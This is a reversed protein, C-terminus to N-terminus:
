PDGAVVCCHRGAQKARYLAADAQQVLVESSQGPEPALVALGVSITVHASSDSAAHPLALEDVADIMRQAIARLGASNTRPFFAVFEEGGYRAVFDSGRKCQGALAAAVRALCDDGAQHGYHDNYRKFYDVDIFLLNMAAGERMAAAWERAFVEDFHRRNALGTLADQRSIVGLERTLEDLERKELVLLREQLFVVRQRLEFTLGTLGAILASGLAFYPFRSWDPAFGLAFFTALAALVVLVARRFSMSSITCIAMTIFIVGYEAISRLATGAPAVVTGILMGTLSVFAAGALVRDVQPHLAPVTVSIGVAAVGLLVTGFGFVVAGYLDVPINGFGFTVAAIVAITAAVLLWRSRIEAVAHARRRAHYQAELFAPLRLQALTGGDLAAQLPARGASADDMGPPMARGNM